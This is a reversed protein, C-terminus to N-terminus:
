QPAHPQQKISNRTKWVQLQSEANDATHRPTPVEGSEKGCLLSKPASRAFMEDVNGDENVNRKQKTESRRISRYSMDGESEWDWEEREDPLPTGSQLVLFHFNLTLKFRFDHILLPKVMSVYASNREDLSVESTKRGFELAEESNPFSGYKERLEMGDLGRVWCTYDDRGVWRSGYPVLGRSPDKEIAGISEYQEALQLRAYEEAVEKSPCGRHTM